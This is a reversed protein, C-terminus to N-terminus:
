LVENLDIEHNGTLMNVRVTVQYLVKPMVSLIGQDKITLTTNDVAQLLVVGGEVLKCTYVKDLVTM